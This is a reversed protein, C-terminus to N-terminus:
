APWSATCASTTRSRSPRWRRTKRSSRCAKRPKWLRTCATPGAGGPLSSQVKGRIYTRLDAQITSGAQERTMEHQTVAVKLVRTIWHMTRPSTYTVRLLSQLLLVNRTSDDAPAADSEDQEPAFASPFRANVRAASAHRGVYAGRVLRKLSWAGDEGNTSTFERKLVFNDLAFKCQILTEMFKKVQESRKSESLNKFEDQFRQILKSDDLHGDVEGTDEVRMVKLAHLLLSPFKIPTEFRGAEDDHATTAEPAQAYITLASRLGVPESRRSAQDEGHPRLPVLQEFARVNLRDWSTGFITDRLNTNGRTLAMQIYSDMDSCADWIWALCARQEDIDHGDSRLYSMLRAKVIDVQALQQGRTNMIEFYKNLDTGDPLVARVLHVQRTLFRTFTALDEPSKSLRSVRADIAKYGTLIGSGEDDDTASLRSLADTASRRSAYTLKAARDIGLRDLLMFLTTLRQQGDVVEYTTHKAGAPVQRPAVILNGLFYESVKSDRAATLVDDILQDIQENRWAYNRQYIPIEYHTAGADFMAGVSFLEAELQRGM